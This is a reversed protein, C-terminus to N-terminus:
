ELLEGLEERLRSLVRSKAKRVAAPTMDMDAGVEAPLRGEVACSWFARWTKDEFESRVLELARHYLRRVEDPSDEDREDAVPDPVDHWHRDVAELPTPHRNRTRCYDLFKRHAIVRLWGRFTDGPRDRRFTELRRSVALFVDQRIDEADAGQAGWRQCWYQVLPSYLYLLRQWAAQDQGRVRNLLSLSTPNDQV